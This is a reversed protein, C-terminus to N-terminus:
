LRHIDVVRMRPLLQRKQKWDTRLNTCKGRMWVRTEVSFTSRRYIDGTKVWESSLCIVYPEYTSHKILQAAMTLTHPKLNVRCHPHWDLNSTGIPTCTQSTPRPRKSASITLEFGAYPISTQRQIETNYQETCTRAKAAPHDSTWLLGVSHRFLVLFGGPHSAALTRELAASDYLLLLNLKHLAPTSRDTNLCSQPAGLRQGIPAM